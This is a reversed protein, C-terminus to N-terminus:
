DWYATFDYFAAGSRPDYIRIVATYGNWASPQQVVTIDGRGAHLDIHLRVNRNPLGRGRVNAAVDSVHTGSRTIADVRRGSLHIEVVDDVRGSWQLAATGLQGDNNRGRRPNDAWDGNTRRDREWRDHERGRNEGRFGIGDRDDDLYATFRYSDAGARPDRVRLVAQYGNRASPQELVDVDGRGDFLEVRVVSNIRPLAANVRTRSPLAADFGRSVVERGRVVLLVERDVRGTWTFLTRGDRASLAARHNAMEPLLDAGADRETDRNVQPAPTASVPARAMLLGLLVPMAFFSRHVRTPTARHVTM